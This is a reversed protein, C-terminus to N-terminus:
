RQESQAPAHNPLLGDTALRFQGGCIPCAATKKRAGEQNVTSPDPRVGTGSCSGTQDVM